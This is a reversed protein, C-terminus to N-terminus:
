QKSRSENKGWKSYQIAQQVVHETTIEHNWEAFRGSFTINAPPQTFRSSIRGQPLTWFDSVRQALDPCTENFEERTMAGTFELCCINNVKSIRTFPVTDDYYVMEYNGDFEKPTHRMTAFTLPHGDFREDATGPHGAQWARWFLHAPMTSVVHEFKAYTYGSDQSPPNNTVGFTNDRIEGVYGHTVPCRSNLRYLIEGHDVDLVNMFNTKDKGESLSLRPSDDAKIPKMTENWPTMKKGVLVAKLKPSLHDRIVGNDYYGIRSQKLMKEPETWGLDKLFQHTEPTSHLWVMKSRTFPDAVKINTGPRTIVPTIVEYEPNYLKWILGSIGGGLIYKSM